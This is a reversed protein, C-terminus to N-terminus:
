PLRFTLRVANGFANGDGAAESHLWLWCQHIACDRLVGDYFRFSRLVQVTVDLRGRADVTASGLQVDCAGPYQSTPSSPPECEYPYVSLGASLGEAQIRVMQRDVLDTSPSVTPAGDWDEDLVTVIARRDALRARRPHRLVVRFSETREPVADNVIPVVVWAATDGPAFTLQGSTREYDAGPRARRGRTEYEVSIPAGSPASLTLPVSVAGRSELDRIDGISVTPVSPTSLVASASAPPAFALAGFVAVVGARVVFRRLMM